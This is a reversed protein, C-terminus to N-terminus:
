SDEKRAKEMEDMLAYAQAKTQSVIREAEQKAKEIEYEAQKKRLNTVSVIGITSLIGLIVIVALVEVLTFGKNIKIKKMDDGGIHLIAYFRRLPM